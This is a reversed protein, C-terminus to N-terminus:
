GSPAPPRHADRTSTRPGPHVGYRELLRRRSLWRREARHFRAAQLGLPRRSHLSALLARQYFGILRPGLVHDGDAEFGLRELGTHLITTAAFAPVDGLPGGERALRALARLSAIVERRFLLGVAIPPLGVAQLRTVRENNLHLVGIRDGRRVEAGDPLRIPTRARRVELRLAPGIESAPTDLAHLFRYVRDYVAIVGHFRPRSRRV